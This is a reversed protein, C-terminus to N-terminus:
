AIGISNNWTAAAVGAVMTGHGDTSNYTSGAQSGDNPWAMNAGKYDDVIGNKDDDIDNNEIEKWNIAINDKLDIHNQQFGNDVIAIVISTDGQYIDWASFAKVTEFFSQM